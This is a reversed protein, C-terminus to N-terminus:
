IKPKSPGLPAPLDVEKLIMVAAIGLVEPDTL